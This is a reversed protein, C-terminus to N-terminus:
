CTGSLPHSLHELSLTTTTPKGWQDELHLYIRLNTDPKICAAAPTVQHHLPPHQSKESLGVEDMIVSVFYIHAM